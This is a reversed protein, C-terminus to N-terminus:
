SRMEWLMTRWEEVPYHKINGTILKAGTSRAAVYFPVDTKDTMTEPYDEEDVEVWLANIQLRTLIGDITEEDFGFKDKHLVRIYENFISETLIVEYKGDLVDRMFDYADGKPSYIASVIVNTDIVVRSGENM